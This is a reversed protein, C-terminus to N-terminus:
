PADLDVGHHREYCDLDLVTIGSNRSTTDMRTDRFVVQRGHVRPELQELPDFTLQFERGTRWNTLYIDYNVVDMRLYDSWSTGARDDQYVVFDGHVDPWRQNHEESTVRHTEGAAIDYLYINVNTSGQFPVFTGDRTDSWVALQGDTRADRRSQYDGTTIPQVSGTRHDYLFVNSQLSGNPSKQQEAFVAFPGAASLSGWLDGDEWIVTPRELALDYVTLDFTSDGDVRRVNEYVVFGVGIAVHSLFEDVPVQLTREWGEELHWLRLHDTEDGPGSGYYAAALQAEHLSPSCFRKGLWRWSTGADGVLWLDGIESTFTIRGSEFGMLEFRRCLLRHAGDATKRAPQVFTECPEMEEVRRRRWEESPEPVVPQEVPGV